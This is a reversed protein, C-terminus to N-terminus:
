RPGTGPVTGNVHGTPTVAVLKDVASVGSLEAFGAWDLWTGPVPGQVHSM